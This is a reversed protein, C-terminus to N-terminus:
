RIWIPPYTTETIWFTSEAWLPKYGFRVYRNTHLILLSQRCYWLFSIKVCMVTQRCSWLPFKVSCLPKDALYFPNNQRCSWLPFFRVFGIRHGKFFSLHWACTLWKSMLVITNKVTLNRRRQGNDADRVLFVICSFVISLCSAIHYHCLPNLSNEAISIVCRNQSPLFFRSMLM